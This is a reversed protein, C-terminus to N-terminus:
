KMVNMPQARKHLKHLLDFSIILDKVGNLLRLATSSTALLQQKLRPSLSPMLWIECNYYLISYFNSTILQKIESKTLYKTILKISLLTKKSKNIAQAVQNSWQLKNDFIVGFINVSKNSRILKNNVMLSILPHDRKYFM